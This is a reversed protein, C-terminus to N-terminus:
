VAKGHRARAEVPPLRFDPFTCVDVYDVESDRAFRRLLPSLVAATNLRSSRGPRGPFRRHLGHDPIRGKELPRTSTRSLATGIMGVRM